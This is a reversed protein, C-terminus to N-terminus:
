PASHKKYQDLMARDLRRSLMAHRRMDKQQPRPSLPIAKEFDDALREVIYKPIERLFKEIAWAGRPIWDKTATESYVATTSGSQMFIKGPGRGAVVANPVGDDAGKDEAESDDGDAMFRHIPQYLYICNPLPARREVPTMTRGSGKDCVVELRGDERIRVPRAHPFGLRRSCLDLGSANIFCLNNVRLGMCTPSVAYLTSMPGFFSLGNKADELRLMGVMRYFIALRQEIHFKPKIHWPNKDLYIFGLWLGVRVKDLWDLLITFHNASIAEMSILRNMVDETKAELAAFRSNCATCAPFTLSDFAFRRIKYEPNQFNIGFSALRNPDGTLKILWQPLVHEKNKEQPLAGRFVCFKQMRSCLEALIRALIRDSVDPAPGILM